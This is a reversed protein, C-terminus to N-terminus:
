KVPIFGMSILLANDILIIEENSLYGIESIIRKKDIVRMQECLAISKKELLQTKLIVHTPLNTKLKSTIPVVITTPSYKNGVDNQVIVAPRVGGQESGNKEGFNVWVLQGRKM